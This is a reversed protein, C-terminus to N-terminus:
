ATHCSPPHVDNDLSMMNNFRCPELAFCSDICPASPEASCATRVALRAYDSITSGSISYITHCLGLVRELQCSIPSVNCKISTYLLSVWLLSKNFIITWPFWRREGSCAENRFSILLVMRLRPRLMYYEWCTTRQLRQEVLVEFM